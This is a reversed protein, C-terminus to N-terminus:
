CSLSAPRPRPGRAGIVHLLSPTVILGASARSARPCNSDVQLLAKPKATSSAYPCPTRAATPSNSSAVGGLAAAVRTSWNKNEALALADIDLITEWRPDQGRYSELTTRRWIGRVHSEDQWFNELGQRKLSVFPIRDKAQLITLADRYFRDYRPDSQLLGLTKENEAQAWALARPGEVEELWLCSDDM